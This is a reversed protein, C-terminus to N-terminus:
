STPSRSRCSRPTAASPGSSWRPGARPSTSASCRPTGPWCRRSGEAVRGRVLAESAPADLKVAGATYTPTGFEVAPPSPDAAGPRAREEPTGARLREWESVVFPRLAETLRARDADTVAFETDLTLYGGGGGLEPHAARDEESLAYALLGFAPRGDTDVRVRPAPPLAYFRNFHTDDRYVTIGDVETLAPVTLM